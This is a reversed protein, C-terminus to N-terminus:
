GGLRADLSLADWSALAVLAMVISSLGSWLFTDDLSAILTWGRSQLPRFLYKISVLVTLFTGATLLAAVLVALAQHRDAQPSILDNDLFRRLFHAVLLRRRM